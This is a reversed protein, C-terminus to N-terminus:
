TSNLQNTLATLREEVTGSIGVNSYARVEAGFFKDEDEFLAPKIVQPRRLIRDWERALTRLWSRWLTPLGFAEPLTNLGWLVTGLGALEYLTGALTFRGAWTLPFVVLAFAPVAILLALLIDEWTPKPAVTAM